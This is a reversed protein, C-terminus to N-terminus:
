KLELEKIKETIEPNTAVTIAIFIILIIIFLMMILNAKAYGKLTLDKSKFSWKFMLFIYILAGIFPIVIPLFTLGIWKAATMPKVAKKSTEETKIYNVTTNYKEVPEGCFACNSAYSELKGGCKKCYM